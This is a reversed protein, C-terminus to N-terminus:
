SQEKAEINVFSVWTEDSTVCIIHYLFECGDKHYQGLFTLASALRQTEHVDMLMESGM